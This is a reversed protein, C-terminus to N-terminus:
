KLVRSLDYGVLRGIKGLVAQVLGQPFPRPFSPTVAYIECFCQELLDIFRCILLIRAWEDPADLLLIRLAAYLQMVTVAEVNRFHRLAQNSLHQSLLYKTSFQRKGKVEERDLREGIKQILLVPEYKM